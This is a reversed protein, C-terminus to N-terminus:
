GVLQPLARAGVGGEGFGTRGLWEEVADLWLGPAEMQAIHGVDALVDLRWNARGRVTERALEVPVLRDREGHIVLVPCRVGAMVRQVFEPRGKLRMLSRAAQLFAPVADRDRQRHAAMEVQAQFVAPDVRSPDVCCVKLAESVVREPGWRSARSRVVLEALGPMRYFTFGAVILREPRVRRTCPLAPGTLVAGALSLPELAAQMSVLAGGMSNGVGVIPPEALEAIFRSLLRRNAPLGSSRGARPTHGFGPLDIGLVRGHRALGPAVAMWNLHTGGLGHVCVFTLGPRGPWERYTVPGDLDVSQIPPLMLEDSMSM